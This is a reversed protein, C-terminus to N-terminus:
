VGLEQGYSKGIATDCTTFDSDKRISMESAASGTQLRVELRQGRNFRHGDITPVYVYLTPYILRMMSPVSDAYLVHVRCPLGYQLIVDGATIPLSQNGYPEIAAITTGDNSPRINISKIGEVNVPLELHLRFNHSVIANPLRRRTEDWGMGLTIGRFCPQGDCVGFGLAALRSPAGNARAILITGTSIVVLSALM